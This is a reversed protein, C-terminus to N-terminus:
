NNRMFHASIKEMILSIYQFFVSEMLIDSPKLLMDKGVSPVFSKVKDQPIVMEADDVMEYFLSIFQCVNDEVQQKMDDSVNVQAGGSKSNADYCNNQDGLMVVQAIRDNGDFALGPIGMKSNKYGKLAGLATTSKPNAPKVIRLDEAFATGYVNKFIDRIYDEHESYLGFLKSGNGTLYIVSPCEEPSKMKCLQAIHYILSTNHFKLMFNPNSNHFINEFDHSAQSFGYNMIASISDTPNIKEAGSLPSQLELVKKCKDRSVQQRMINIGQQAQENHNLDGDLYLANGAFSFSTAFRPVNEKFGFVDTSGGGVDILITLESVSSLDDICEYIPARSENTFLVHNEPSVKFCREYEEEWIRKHEDTLQYYFSLPYTWILKTNQPNYGQCILNSRFIFLLEKVFSTFAQERAEDTEFDRGHKVRFWKFKGETVSDYNGKRKGIEYYAFPIASNYLPIKEETGNPTMGNVYTQNIVSPIPFYYGKDQRDNSKPLIRSPIFECLQTALWKDTFSGDEERLYLDDRDKDIADVKDQPTCTKHMFMLESWNGDDHVTSIEKPKSFDKANAANRVMYAVYTNSTGLDVAIIVEDNKMTIVNKGNNEGEVGQNVDVKRLKPVILASGKDSTIEAVDLAKRGAEIHYYWCNGPMTANAMITQNSKVESNDKDTSFEGLELPDKDTGIHFFHLKSRNNSNPDFHHYFLVKYINDFLTTKVFPYIGFAFPSMEKGNIVVGQPYAVPGKDDEMVYERRIVSTGGGVLDVKMKVLFTNKTKRVITIRETIKTLDGFLSTLHQLGSSKVPILCRDKMQKDTVEDLFPVSVYNDNIDYPLVFLADSLIDNPGLWYTVEGNFYRNKVEIGYEEESITLDAPQVLYLLYKLYSCDINDPRIFLPQNEHTGIQQLTPTGVNFKRYEDRQFFSTNDLAQKEAQTLSQEVVAFLNEFIYCLRTGRENLLLYMFERFDTSRGKMDRWDNPDDTFLNRANGTADKISIGAEKLNCDAKSFFGTFPSSSAFTKGKYKFLYLSTFDFVYEDNGLRGHMRKRITRLYQNRYLQLTELYNNLRSNNNPGPSELKIKKISIGKEQLDIDDSHYLMEFVDLCHSLARSYDPSIDQPTVDRKKTLLSRGNRLEMFAIDTVHMRAYPSPISTIRDTKTTNCIVANIREKSYPNYRLANADFDVKFDTLGADHTAVEEAKLGFIYKKKAM